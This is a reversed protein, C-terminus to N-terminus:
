FPKPACERFDAPASAKAQEPNPLFGCIAATSPTESLSVGRPIDSASRIEAEITGLDNDCDAFPKISLSKSGVVDVTAYPYLRSELSPTGALDLVEL